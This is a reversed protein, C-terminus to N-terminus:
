INILRWVFQIWVSCVTLCLNGNHIVQTVKLRTGLFTRSTHDQSLRLVICMSVSWLRTFCNSTALTFRWLFHVRYHFPRLILLKTAMQLAHSYLVFVLKAQFIETFIKYYKSYFPILLLPRILRSKEGEKNKGEKRGVVSHYRKRNELEMDNLVDVKPPQPNNIRLQWSLLSRSLRNFASSVLLETSVTPIVETQLTQICKIGLEM